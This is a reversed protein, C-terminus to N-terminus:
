EGRNGKEKIKKLTEELEDIYKQDIYDDEEDPIGDNDIDKFKIETKKISALALLETGFFAYFCTILTPSLESGTQFQMWVSVGTFIIISFLIFFILKKEM